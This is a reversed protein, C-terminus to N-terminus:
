AAEKYSDIWEMAEEVSDCEWEPENDRTTIIYKYNSNDRPTTQKILLGKYSKILKAM